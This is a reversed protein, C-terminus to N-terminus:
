GFVNREKRTQHFFNSDAVNASFTGDLNTWGNLIIVRILYVSVNKKITKKKLLVTCITMHM